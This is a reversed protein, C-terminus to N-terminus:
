LNFTLLKLIYVNLIFRLDSIKINVARILTKLIRFIKKKKHKM